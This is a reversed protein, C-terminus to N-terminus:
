SRKNNHYWRIRTPGELLLLINKRIILICPLVIIFGLFLLSKLGTKGFFQSRSDFGIGYGIYGYKDPDANNNLKVVGFCYNGLTFCTNPDKSCIDLKYSTYVGVVNRYLFSM